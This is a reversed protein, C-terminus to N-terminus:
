RYIDDGDDDGRPRREGVPLGDCDGTPMRRRVTAMTPEVPPPAALLWASPSSFACAFRDSSMACSDRAEISTTLTTNVLQSAGISAAVSSLGAASQSNVPSGGRESAPSPMFSVLVESPASLVTFSAARWASRASEDAMGSPTTMIEPSTSSTLQRLMVAAASCLSGSTQVPPVPVALASASLQLTTCPPPETAVVRSDRAM